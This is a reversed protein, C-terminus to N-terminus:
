KESLDLNAPEDQYTMKGTTEDNTEEFKMDSIWVEGIGQMRVGIKIYGADEPVDLVVKCKEWDKTGTVNRGFMADYSISQYSVDEIEMLLAASIDFGETKLVGSFAVRKNRYRKAIFTQKLDSVWDPRAYTSRIFASPKGDYLVSNSIGHEYMDWMWSDLHWGKIPSVDETSSLHQSFYRQYTGHVLMPVISFLLLIVFPQSFQNSKM